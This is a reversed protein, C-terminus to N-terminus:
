KTMRITAKKPANNESILSNLKSWLSLMNHFSLNKTFLANSFWTFFEALFASSLKFRFLSIIQSAKTFLAAFFLFLFSEANHHQKINYKYFTVMNKNSFYNLLFKQLLNGKNNGLINSLKKKEKKKVKLCSKGSTISIPLSFFNLLITM